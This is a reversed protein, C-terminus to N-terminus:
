FNSISELYFPIGLQFPLFLDRHCESGVSAVLCSLTSWCKLVFTLAMTVRPGAQVQQLGTKSVTYWKTRWGRRRRRM